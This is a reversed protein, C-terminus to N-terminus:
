EMARDLLRTSSLSAFSNMLTRTEHTSGWSILSVAGNVTFGTGYDERLPCTGFQKSRNLVFPGPILGQKEAILVFFREIAHALTGNRRIRPGGSFDNATLGLRFLPELSKPRFWFMSGAPFNLQQNKQISLGLRLSFDRCIHWNEPWSNGIVSLTAM